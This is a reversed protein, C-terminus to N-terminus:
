ISGCIGKESTELSDCGFAQSKVGDEDASGVTGATDHAFHDVRLANNYGGHGGFLGAVFALDEAEDEPM